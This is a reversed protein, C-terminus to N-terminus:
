EIQPVEVDHEVVIQDDSQELTVDTHSEIETVESGDVDEKFVRSGSFTQPLTIRSDDGDITTQLTFPNEADGSIVQVSDHGTSERVIQSDTDDLLEQVDFDEHTQNPDIARRLEEYGSELIESM